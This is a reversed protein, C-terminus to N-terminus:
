EDESGPRLTGFRTSLSAGVALVFVGLGVLFGVWPVLGLIGLLAVGLAIQGLPNEVRASAADSVRHGVLWTLAANGLLWAVGFVVVGLWILPIGIVTFALFGALPVALIAVLVGWLVVAGTKEEIAARVTRVHEPFLTFVLVNLAFLVIIGLISATTGGYWYGGMHHGMFGMGRHRGDFGPIFDFVTDLGAFLRLTGQGELLREVEGESLEELVEVSGVKAGPATRVMGREVLVRGGVVSEPGLEVIGQALHVNGEVRGSIQIRDAEATVDGLVSGLISVTGVDTDVNGRVKGRVIVEGMHTRVNGAVDGSVTVGGMDAEVDGGVTGDVTVRGMNATVDGKVVGFVRLDGMNVIVSGNVTTGAPVEVDGVAKRIDGDIVRGQALVPTSVLAMLLVFVVLKTLPKM